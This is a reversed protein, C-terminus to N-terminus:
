GNLKESQNTLKSHCKMGPKNIQNIANLTALNRHEVQVYTEFLILSNLFFPQTYKFHLGKM